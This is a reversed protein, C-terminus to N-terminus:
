SAFALKAPRLQLHQEARLMADITREVLAYQSSLRDPLPKGTM